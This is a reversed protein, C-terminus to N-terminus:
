SIMGLATDLEELENVRREIEDELLQKRKELPANSAVMLAIIEMDM